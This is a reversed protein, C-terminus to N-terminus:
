RVVDRRRRIVGPPRRGQSFEGDESDPGQVPLPPCVLGGSFKQLQQPPLKGLRPLQRFAGPLAGQGQPLMDEEAKFLFKGPWAEGGGYNGAGAGAVAGPPHQPNEAVAGKDGAAQVAFPLAGQPIKEGLLQRIDQGTRGVPLHDPAELLPSDGLLQAAPAAVAGAKGFFVYLVGAGAFFGKLLRNLIERHAASAPSKQGAAKLFRRASLAQLPGESIKQLLRPSILPRVLSRSYQPSNQKPAAPYLRSSIRQRPYVWQVM